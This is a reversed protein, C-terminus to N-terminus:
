WDLLRRDGTLSQIESIEQSVELTGKYTKSADRVAFYQILVFKPGMHIWFSAVDKEGARFSNVIEEVVHVSEPPHCYQVKRGIIAPTRPFVRHPPNSYFRVTDNDDVFTVDVPLHNFILNFQEISLVGTPLHIQDDSTFFQKEPSSIPNTITAFPLGIEITQALMEQFTEKSFTELMIPFLIKEERLIITNLNFFVLGIVNNFEKLDLEGVRLIEITKRINRKIDDHFSWMIKVCKHHPWKIELLPFVVNEMVTYHQSINEIEEFRTALEALLKPEPYKNIEKILARSDKLRELVLANDDILVKLVSEKEPTLAPYSLLTQYLINILKNSVFKLDTISIEKEILIDFANIIDHPIFKSTKLQHKEILELGNQGKLIGLMYDALEAARFESTNTFESM